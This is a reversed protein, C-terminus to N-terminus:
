RRHGAGRQRDPGGGARGRRPLHRVAAPVNQAFTPSSPWDNDQTAHNDHCDLCYPADPDGAAHLSGHIGSQYQPRSGRRPLHRLGGAGLDHRLRAGALHHRRRPVPRLRHRQPDLGLLGGRRRLALRDRRRAGHDPERRRPLASLGPQGARGPLLRPPDQAALPLRRLGPDQAAGGGVAPGRDGQPPGARDPRPLHRLDQRRKRPPHELGPQRPAPHRPRHPVLHVGRDGDPGPPLPGRRPDVHLLQELIRDQSIERNLSVPSGEQHCRGCLLPVNMVATPSAPDAAPPIEHSGHCTGCTPALEDGRAAAQGHLSRRETRAQTAHCSACSNAADRANAIEHAGHCDACAPARRSDAALGGHRAGALTEAEDSHCDGCSVAALEDDHPVDEIDQHCDICDFDGHVSGAFSAPDVHMSIERGGREGTLDADEHCLICDETDQATAFGTFALAAFALAALTLAPIPGGGLDPPRTRARM